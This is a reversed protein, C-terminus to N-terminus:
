FDVCRNSCIASRKTVMPRLIRQTVIAVSSPAETTKQERKSAGYVIPVEISGLEELSLSTFDTDGAARLTACSILLIVSGLWSWASPIPLRGVNPRRRERHCLRLEMPM